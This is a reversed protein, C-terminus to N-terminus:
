PVSFTIGEGSSQTGEQNPFTQLLSLRGRAQEQLSQLWLMSDNRRHSHVFASGTKVQEAGPLKSEDWVFGPRERPATPIPVPRQMWHSQAFLKASPKPHQSVPFSTKATQFDEPICSHLQLWRAHPRGSPSGRRRPLERPDSM